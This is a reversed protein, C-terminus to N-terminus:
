EKGHRDREIRDASKEKRNDLDGHRIHEIAHAYADAIRNSAQRANLCITYSGDENLRVFEDITTIGFDILQVNVDNM